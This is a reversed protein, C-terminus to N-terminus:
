LLMEKEVQIKKKNNHMSHIAGAAIIERSLEALCLFM